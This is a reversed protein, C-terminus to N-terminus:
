FYLWTVLLRALPYSFQFFILLGVVLGPKLIHEWTNKRSSDWVLLRTYLINWMISFFLAVARLSSDANLFICDYLHDAYPAAVIM